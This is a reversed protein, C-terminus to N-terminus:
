EEEFIVRVKDGIQLYNLIERELLIGSWNTVDSMLRLTYSGGRRNKKRAM